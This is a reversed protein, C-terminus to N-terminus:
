RNYLYRPLFGLLGFFLVFGIMKKEDAEMKKAVYYGIVGGVVPLGYNIVMNKMKKPKKYPEKENTIEEENKAEEFNAFKGIYLNVVQPSIYGKKNKLQIFKYPVREGNINVVRTKLQGDIITGKLLKKDSEEIVSKQGLELIPTTEKLIFQLTNNIGENKM